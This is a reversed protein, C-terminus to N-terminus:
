FRATLRAGPRTLTVAAIRDVPVGITIWGTGQGNDVTMTGLNIQRGDRTTVLVDYRGPVAATRVVVLIWSPEGEYAFLNGAESAGATLLPAARLYRGHAVALTHRYGAALDRDAGTRWWVALGAIAAILVVAAARLAATRLGPRGRRRTRRAGGAPDAPDATRPPEAPRVAGGPGGLGTLVRSEFGPPPEREPALLLLGDAVAAASELGGRCRVCRALHGLAPAREDGAAIGFALEPILEDTRLCDLRDPM